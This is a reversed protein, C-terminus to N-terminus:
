KEEGDILPSWWGGGTGEDGGQRRRGVGIAIGARDRDSGVALAVEGHLLADIDQEHGEKGPELPVRVRMGTMHCVAASLGYAASTGMVCWTITLALAAAQKGFLVGGGGYFAGNTPSGDEVRALLGTWLIGMMGAFGHCPLVELTDDVSTLSPMAHALRNAALSTAGGVLLAAAPSIFGCAPTIAVLGVVLGTAAGVGTPSGTFWGDHGFAWEVAGWALLAASGALHTNLLARSAIGGAAIASGGNFGFWGFLLLGAGLLVNPVSSAPSKLKRSGGESPGIWWALVFGSVGSATEVVLGGAFDQVGWTNLFGGTFFVARALPVYVILHWFVSFLLWAGPMIRLVVAGSIVASTIGAFALEFLCYAHESVVTGVRVADDGANFPAFRPDLGGVFPSAAAYANPGFALAYSFLVWVISVVAQASFSMAMANVVGRDHVLGAYFLALAPTMLLVLASSTLLWSTDGTDM